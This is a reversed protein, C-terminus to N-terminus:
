SLAREIWAAALLVRADENVAGVVQVGIPLDASGRYLPLTVCPVRLLTWMQGFIPDGTDELGLPAEGVASPTIFVEFDTFLDTLMARCDTALKQAALYRDLTCGAGDDLLAWLQDSLHRPHNQREFALARWMEYTMVTRQASALGDFVGPLEIEGVHAGARALRYAADEIAHVTGIAARSWYPTRCIGISPSRVLPRDVRAPRIGALAGAFLSADVLTRAFVGITDLTDSLFKMGARNVVGFTPMYGVIGCYSAPRIVSAGTQSGIALPVMFDAVAAASGSSSGGPSHAVNRPNRTATPKRTAFETTATKGLVVGGAARMLSVCAADAWPRHGEYIASGYETPVGATDFIDKVGVPIGHIPGRLPERDRLRAEALAGEADVFTWAKIECDRAAIRELCSAVLAESTIAGCAIAAAAQDASYEFLPATGDVM